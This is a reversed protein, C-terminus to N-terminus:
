KEKKRKAFLVLIDKNTVFPLLYQHLNFIIKGNKHEDRNERYFRRKIMISHLNIHFFFM